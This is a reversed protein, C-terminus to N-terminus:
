ATPQNPNEQLILGDAPVEIIDNGFHHRLIMHAKRMLDQMQPHPKGTTGVSRQALMHNWQELNAQVVIETALSNNLVTRARQASWDYGDMLISYNDETVCCSALWMADQIPVDIEKTFTELKAKVGEEEDVEPNALHDHCWVPLIVEMKGDAYSIYRTSAQAFSCLRHRVMEHTVGRDTIFRMTVYTHALREAECMNAREAVVDLFNLARFKSGISGRSDQWEKEHDPRMALVVRKVGPISCLEHLAATIIIYDMSCHAAESYAGVLTSVVGRINGSLIEHNQNKLPIHATKRVGPYAGTGITDTLMRCLEASRVHMAVTGFELMAYHSHKVLREILKDASGDTIKDQSRYCTRAAREVQISYPVQEGIGNSYLLESSQKIVKM